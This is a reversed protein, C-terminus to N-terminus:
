HSIVFNQPPAAVLLLRHEPFSEKAIDLILLLSLYHPIYITKFEQTKM